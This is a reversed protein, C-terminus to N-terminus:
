VATLEVFEHAAMLAANQAAKVIPNYGGAEYECDYPQDFATAALPLFGDADSYDRWTVFSTDTKVVELRCDEVATYYDYVVKDTDAPTVVDTIAVEGNRNDITISQVQTYDNPTESVDVTEVVVSGLVIPGYKTRNGNALTAGEPVKTEGSPITYLLERTVTRGASVYSIVLKDGEALASGEGKMGDTKTIDQAIRIDGMEADVEVDVAAANAATKFHASGIVVPAQTLTDHGEGLSTYVDSQATKTHGIQKIGEAPTDVETKANLKWSQYRRTLLNFGSLAKGSALYDYARHMLSSWAHWLSVANKFNNRVSIQKTTKPNAPIVYRRRYQKGKWTAFVGAQGAAGSYRDGFINTILVGPLLAFPIGLLGGVLGIILCVALLWYSRMKEM